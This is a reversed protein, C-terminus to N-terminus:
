YSERIATPKCPFRHLPYTIAPNQDHHIREHARRNDLAPAVIQGSQPVVVRALAVFRLESVLITNRARNSVAATEIGRSIQIIQQAGEQNKEVTNNSQVASPSWSYKEKIWARREKEGKQPIAQPMVVAPLMSRCEKLTTLATIM